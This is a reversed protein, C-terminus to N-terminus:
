ASSRRTRGGAAVAGVAGDPPEDLHMVAAQAVPSVLALPDAVLGLSRIQSRCRGRM